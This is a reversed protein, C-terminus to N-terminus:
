YKVRCTPCDLSDKGKKLHIGDVHKVVFKQIFAYNAEHNNVDIQKDEYMERIQGDYEQNGWCNPCFGEPAQGKTEQKPRKFFRILKDIMDKDKINPATLGLKADPKGNM